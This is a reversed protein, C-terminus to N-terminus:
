ARDAPFPLVMDIHKVDMIAMLLRDVGVAVGSCEPLGAALANLLRQDLPNIEEGRAQRQKRDLEFRRRQEAQDTLEQYGNALELRGLYVEFREAVPPTDQRVRALAAQQPLFDYIVTISEADLQPQVLHTLLLDLWADLDLQGAHIDRESALARCEEEDARFPDLGISERFLDRYSIQTVPWQDFRGHGCVRVLNIVEDALQRYTLEHRYWELMTFEPNHSAGKEGDRFVRGLEYIDPAGAALLRKMPYEASTRLFRPPSAEIVMSAINPDSNGAGSLLPTEVELAEHEQFYRRIDSLLRARQELARRSASPRWDSTDPTQM